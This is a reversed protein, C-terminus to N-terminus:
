YPQLEIRKGEPVNPHDLQQPGIHSIILWLKDKNASVMNELMRKALPRELGAFPEDLLMIPRGQLLVRALALRRLQGGSLTIGRAGLLSDLAKPLSKIVVDLEVTKLVSWIDEESLPRQAPNLNERVTADLIETKQTLFSVQSAVETDNSLTIKGGATPLWGMIAEALSSKGLGSPGQLWHVAGSEFCASVPKILLRQNRMVSVQNLTLTATKNATNVPKGQQVVQSYPNEDLLRRAAALTKGYGGWQSPLDAALEQWALASLVLMIMEAASLNGAQFAISSLIVVVLFIAQSLLEVRWLAHHQLALQQDDLQEQRRAQKLLSQQQAAYADWAVLETISETLAMAQRRLRQTSQLQQLALRRTIAAMRGSVLLVLAMALVLALAAAPIYLYWFVTLSLTAAVFVIVPALLRLLLNDMADLNRTLNQVGDAVRLSALQAMAQQKLRKFLAIRWRAQLKLVMDHNVLREIYRSLTRAIAFFRIGAGPTYIDFATYLAAATIFWGSLSLLGIGFLATAVALALGVVLQLRASKLQKLWPKLLQWDRKIM